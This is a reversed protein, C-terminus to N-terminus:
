IEMELIVVPMDLDFEKLMKPHVEGFICRKSKACRGEIFIPDKCENIKEKSLLNYIRKIDTFGAKSDSIAVCLKIKDVGNEVVHGIEFIKHPYEITKNKALFKLMGPIMTSRVYTYNNNCPNLIKIGKRNVKELSNKDILIFNLVEQFGAGVLVERIDRIRKDKRKGRTFFEIERPKINNYGYGILIDEIIDVEDMVDNRIPPIEVINKKVNYRMKSLINKIGNNSVGIGIKEKIEDFNLDMKKFKLSPTNRNKIRVSFINGRLSFLCSIMNILFGVIKENTGTVEILINKTNKTVKVREDNVIPPISLIKDGILAPVKEKVLKSYEVGKPHEKLIESIKMERKFGLPIIKENRSVLEYELAKTKIKDLDYFGIAAKKRKRGYSMDLKEQFGMWEKIIDENLNVNKIIVASIFPRYYVNRVKITMNSKKVKPLRFGSEIGMIGKLQFAIGEVSWLDPRNTDEFDITLWGDNISDIDGKLYNMFLEKLKEIKIKKGVLKTLDKYNIEVKPM